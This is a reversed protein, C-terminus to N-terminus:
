RFTPSSCNFHIVNLTTLTNYVQYRFIYKYVSVQFGECKPGSMKACQTPAM